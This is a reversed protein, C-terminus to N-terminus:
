RPATRRALKEGSLLCTSVHEPSSVAVTQSRTRAVGTQEIAPWLPSTVSPQKKGWKWTQEGRRAGSGERKQTGKGWKRTEQMDLDHLPYSTNLLVRGPSASPDLSASTDPTGTSSSPDWTYTHHM